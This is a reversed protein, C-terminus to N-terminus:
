LKGKIESKMQANMINQGWVNYFPSLFHVGDPQYIDAAGGQDIPGNDVYIWGRKECMAKVQSNFDTYNAWRPSRAIAEPSPAIISNVVIKAKPVVNLIKDIQAEYVAGYGGEGEGVNMGTDNVGYSLYIVSPQLSKLEDLHQDIDKITDGGAAFIRADDLCGYTSFGVVRSDGLFAYDHFMSFVNEPDVSISNELEEIRRKDLRASIDQLDKSDQMRLYERGEAVPDFRNKSLMFVGAAAAAALAPWILWNLGRKRLKRNKSNM